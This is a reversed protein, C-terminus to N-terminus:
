APPRQETMSGLCLVLPMTANLVPSFAFHGCFRVILVVLVLDMVSRWVWLKDDDGQIGRQMEM